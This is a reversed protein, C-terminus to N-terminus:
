PEYRFGRRFYESARDSNIIAPGTMNHLDGYQCWILENDQWIFAPGSLRHCKGHKTHELTNDYRISQCSISMNLEMILNCRTSPVVFTTAMNGIDLLEMM